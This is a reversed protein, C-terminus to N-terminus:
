EAQEDDNIELIKELEKTYSSLEALEAKYKAILKDTANVSKTDQSGVVV